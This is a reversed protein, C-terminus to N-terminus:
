GVSPELLLRSTGYRTVVARLRDDRTLAAAHQNPTTKCLLRVIDDRVAANASPVRATQREAVKEKARPESGVDAPVVRVALGAEPCTTPGTIAIPCSRLILADMASREKPSTNRMIDALLRISTL